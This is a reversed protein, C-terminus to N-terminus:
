QLGTELHNTQWYFKHFPISLMRTMQMKRDILRLTKEYLEQDNSNARGHKTCKVLGKGIKIIAQRQAILYLLQNYLTFKLPKNKIYVSIKKKDVMYKVESM